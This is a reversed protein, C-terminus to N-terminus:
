NAINASTVSLWIVLKVLSYSMIILILGIILWTINKKAQEIKESDAGGINMDIGIFVIMIVALPAAFYLLGGAILRLIFIFNEAPTKSANIQFPANVPMLSPDIEYAYTTASLLLILSVFFITRVLKQNKIKM